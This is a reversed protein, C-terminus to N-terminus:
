RGLVTENGSKIYTEHEKLIQMRKLCSILVSGRLGKQTTFAEM